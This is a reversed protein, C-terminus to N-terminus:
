MPPKVGDKEVVIAGASTQDGDRVARIFVTAGKFLAAQTGPQVTVIPVGAPVLVTQQGGNYTVTLKKAGNQSAAASVSGNTMSSNVKRPTSVASVSGNTMASATHGKGTTTDPIDDWPYHGEGVGKMAPPFVVVELAVQNTGVTKTATGIYSGPEVKDLDSKVVQLYVTNKTLAVPLDAGATTHVTIKGADISAITGRVRTETPAAIAAIATTGALVATLIAINARKMHVGELPHSFLRRGTKCLISGWLGTRYRNFLRDAGGGCFRATLPAQRHEVPFYVLGFIRASTM